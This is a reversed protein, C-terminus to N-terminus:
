RITYFVQLEIDNISYNGSETQKMIGEYGNNKCFQVFGELTDEYTVEPKNNTTEPTGIQLTTRMEKISEKLGTFDGNSNALENLLNRENKERESIHHKTNQKVSVVM